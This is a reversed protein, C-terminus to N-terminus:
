QGFKDENMMIYNTSDPKSDLHKFKYIKELTMYYGKSNPSKYERESLITLTSDNQIVGTQEILYYDGLENRYYQILISDNDVKYVGWNWIDSKRGNKPRSAFHNNKLDHEFQILVSDYHNLRELDSETSRNVEIETSILLNDSCYLYGNSYLILAEIEKRKFESDALKKVGGGQKPIEKLFDLSETKHYYYGDIRFSKTKSSDTKENIILDNRNFIRPTCSFGLVSIILISGILRIKSKM